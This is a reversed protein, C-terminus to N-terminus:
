SSIGNKNKNFLTLLPKGLLFYLLLVTLGGIFFGNELLTSFDYKIGFLLISIVFQVIAYTINGKPSYGFLGLFKTKTIGFIFHPMANALIAGIFFDVINM